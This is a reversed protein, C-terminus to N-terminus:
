SPEGREEEKKKCQCQGSIAERKARYDSGIREITDQVAFLASEAEQVLKLQQQVFPSQQWDTVGQQHLSYVEIGLRAGCSDMKKRAHCLKWKQVRMKAFKATWAFCIRFCKCVFCTVCQVFGTRAPVENM